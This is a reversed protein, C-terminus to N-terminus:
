VPTDCTGPVRMLVLSFFSVWGVWKAMADKVNKNVLGLYHDIQAQFPLLCTVAWSGRQLRASDWLARPSTPAWGPYNGTIGPSWSHVWWHLPGFSDIGPKERTWWVGTTPVPSPGEPGWLAAFSSLQAPCPLWSLSCGPWLISCSPSLGVCQGQEQRPAGPSGKGPSSSGPWSGLLSQWRSRGGGTGAKNNFPSIFPQALAPEGRRHLSRGLVARAM